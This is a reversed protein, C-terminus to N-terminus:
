IVVQVSLNCLSAACNKRTEPDESLVLSSIATVAGHDMIDVETGDKFSLNKLAATCMKQMMNAPLQEITNNEEPDKSAKSNSFFFFINFPTM